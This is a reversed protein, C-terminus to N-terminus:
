FGGREAKAKEQVKVIRKKAAKLFLVLEDLDNLSYWTETSLFLPLGNSAGDNFDFKYEIGCSTHDTRHTHAQRDAAPLHRTLPAAAASSNTFKIKEPQM